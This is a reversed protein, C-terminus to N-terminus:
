STKALPLEEKKQQQQGKTLRRTIGRRPHWCISTGLPHTRTIRPGLGGDLLPWNRVVQKQPGNADLAATSTWDQSAAWWHLDDRLGVLLDQLQLCCHPSKAALAANVPLWQRPTGLSRSTPAHRFKRSRARFRTALASSNIALAMSCFDAKRTPLALPRLDDIAILLRLPLALVVMLALLLLTASFRPTKRSRSANRTLHESGHLTTLLHGGM